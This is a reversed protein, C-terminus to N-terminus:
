EGKEFKVGEYLVQMEIEISISQLQITAELGEFRDIKWADTDKGRYYIEVVPKDQEILVYETSKSLVEVIVTPNSISEKYSAGRKFEGCVVVADPYVYSDFVEINLKMESNLAVCDKANSKLQNRLEGFINGCLLAHNISGGAVTM